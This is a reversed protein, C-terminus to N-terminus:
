SIQSFHIRLDEGFANSCIEIDSISTNHEIDLLRVVIDVCWHKEWTLRFFGGDSPCKGLSAMSTSVLTAGASENDTLAARQNASSSM